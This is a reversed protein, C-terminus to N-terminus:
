FSMEATIGAAVIWGRSTFGPYGPNNSQLGQAAPLPLDPDAVPDVANDPFEDIVPNTAGAIKTVSRTDLRHAQFFFGGRLSAGLVVTEGSIGTIAGVRSSDVYNTRGTQDPIPSPAYTIDAYATSESLLYRAGLSWSLTNRWRDAPTESHSDRYASWNRWVGGGVIQLREGMANWSAGLAMTLPQYGLTFTFEQRETQGNATQIDNSGSVEVSSPTHVAAAVQLGHGPTLVAGFHPSLRSGVVLSQDLYVRGLDAGDPVYVPTTASTQISASFGVGLALLRNLKSGLSFAFHTLQLRYDYLEFRLGNSYYQEREDAYFV